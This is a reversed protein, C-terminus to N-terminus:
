DGSVGEGNLLQELKSDGRFKLVWKAPIEKPASLLHSTLTRAARQRLRFTGLGPIRFSRSTRAERIIHAIVADAIRNCAAKALTPTKCERRIDAILDPSLNM